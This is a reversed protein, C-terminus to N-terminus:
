QIRPNPVVSYTDGNRELDRAARKLELWKGDLAARMWNAQRSAHPDDSQELARLQARFGEDDVNAAARCYYSFERRRDTRQVRHLIIAQFRGVEAHNFKRRKLETLLKEKMYGSRHFIPDAELFDLMHETNINAVRVLGEDVHRLIDPYVRAYARGSRKLRLLGVGREKTAAITDTKLKQLRPM